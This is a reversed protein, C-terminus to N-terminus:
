ALEIGVFAFAALLGFWDGTSLSPDNCCVVLVAFLVACQLTAKVKRSCLGFSPCLGFFAHRRNSGNRNMRHFTKGFLKRRETPTCRPHQLPSQSYLDSFQFAASPYTICCPEQPRRELEPIYDVNFPGYRM